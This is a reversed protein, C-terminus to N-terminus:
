ETRDETRGNTMFPPQMDRPVIMSSNRLGKSITELIASNRSFVESDIDIDELQKVIESLLLPDMIKM